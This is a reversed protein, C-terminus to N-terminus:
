VLLPDGGLDLGIILPDHDASAYPGENYFAPDKFSTDYGILDPEQSNIHWETAGTVFGAIDGSAFGQDLTGRQGDFIFSFADEQGIFTDILDTLGATDDLYQVPDDEAYSNFDGLLIYGGPADYDNAMFDALQVAADLRVANWYAQGDGQDFNPDARLADIDAQTIGTGGADLYAQAADVLDELGSDGKSKFHSSVVTFSEGTANDTFTAVVSPRNRDFDELRVDEPVFPNLVEALAFTQAASPEDYTVLAYGTLTVATSDYIIAPMIADTGVFGGTGTPDVAAYVADSGSAEADANLADLLTDIASGEGFGNNEMEQLALVEAGTGTISEVLKATQRELEELNNAGRPTLNNPGSGGTGDNLTSFYNLVNVSAVQLTGGVDDPTDQRAGGNTTEDIELQESVILRYDGFGFSMVGEVPATLEAGLRVTAGDNGFNDGSDLFGNGNDGANAPLFEFADPNQTSNGDDLLLRANANAETLAAIEAAQTQADFLQTPQTQNGASITVEGFRDLNFNEIITLPDATGSTVSVRMGEIAEFNQVTAPDLTVTVATPLASGTSITVVDTAGTIATLGFSEAVTGTLSVIDGLEVAVGGGTFVFIGESTLADGDADADEEQLYFGDTTIYTVAATVTVKEGVWTSASGSGQIESILLETPPIVIGGNAAGATSTEPARWTGDDNRQLSLGPEETGAEAVGVSTSVTGAATGNTAAFTGEYSLFEVLTGGNSLAIGDPAGNQLGNAPLNWVYYDYTGDTTVTATATTLTGYVAGGSGNYLEVVLGSADSGATTRVEIFEGVDSGANDYHFENLRAEFTPTEVVDAVTVAVDTTTTIAGDSVGVTVNYVNDAGADAPAEFDPAEIFSIAGTSQDITFLAADDGTLSYTLTASDVDTASATAVATTNEDITVAPALTLVPADNSGTITVTVTATDTGGFGDDVTYTFTDTATEGEALADFLSGPDYSVTGGSLSVTAGATSDSVATITTTQGDFERDNALLTAASLALVGNESTAATDNGALVANNTGDLYLT